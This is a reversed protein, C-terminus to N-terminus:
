GAGVLTYTPILLPDIKIDVAIDEQGAPVLACSEADFEYTTVKATGTAAVQILKLLEQLRINGINGDRGDRGPLGPPGALGDQGDRGPL